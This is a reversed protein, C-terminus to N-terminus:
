EVERVELQWVSEIDDVGILLPRRVPDSTEWEYTESRITFKKYWLEESHGSKYNVRILYELQKEM